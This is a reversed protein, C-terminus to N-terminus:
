PTYVIQLWAHGTGGSFPEGGPKKATFTVNPPASPEVALNKGIDLLLIRSNAVAVKMTGSLNCTMGGAATASSHGRGKKASASVTSVVDFTAVNTLPDVGTLAITMSDVSVGDTTNVLDEAFSHIAEPVGVTYPQPRHFIKECAFFLRFNANDAEVFARQADTPEFGVGQVLADNGSRVVVFSKGDIEPPGGSVSSYLVTVQSIRGNADVDDVTVVKVRHIARSIPPSTQDGVTMAAIDTRYTATETWSTGAAVDTPGFTVTTQAFATAAVFFLLLCITRKM